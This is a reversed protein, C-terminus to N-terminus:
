MQAMIDFHKIASATRSAIVCVGADAAPCDLLWGAFLWVDAFFECCPDDGLVAAVLCATAGAEVVDMAAGPMVGSQSLPLQSSFGEWMVMAM